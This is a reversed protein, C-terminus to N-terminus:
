VTSFSQSPLPQDRAVVVEPAVETVTVESVFPSGQSKRTKALLLTSPVTEFVAVAVGSM